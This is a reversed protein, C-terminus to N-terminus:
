ATDPKVTLVPVPADLMIRQANTGLILKGVTTRRRLGIVILSADLDRATALFSEVLDQGGLAPTVTVSAAGSADALEQARPVATRDLPVVSVELGQARGQAAAAAFAAEGEPTALFAVVIRM